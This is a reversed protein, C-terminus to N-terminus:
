LVPRGCPIAMSKPVTLAVVFPVLSPIWTSGMALNKSTDFINLINYVMQRIIAIQRLM